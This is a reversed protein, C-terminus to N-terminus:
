VPSNLEASSVPRGQESRNPTSTKTEWRDLYAQEELSLAYGHNKIWLLLARRTTRIRIRKGQGQTIIQSKFANGKLLTRATEQSVELRLSIARSGVIDM